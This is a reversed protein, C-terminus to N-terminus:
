GDVHGLTDMFAPQNPALKNAKEAYEMAKPSKTQGSVWALNNLALANEPQLDIVSRYYQTAAPYDKRATALDGLYLRIVVDKPHTKLWESATKDADVTNQSALLAKHLRIALDSSPAQKLGTRYAAVAEPWHKGSAQIDGELLYGIAEKPRQKQVDRAVGLADKTKGAALFAVILSRQAELLDPKIELAKRLNKIAEDTNKQAMQIEAIRM